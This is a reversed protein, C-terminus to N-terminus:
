RETEKIMDWVSPIQSNVDREIAERTSLQASKQAALLSIATDARAREWDREFRLRNIARNASRFIEIATKLRRTNRLDFM